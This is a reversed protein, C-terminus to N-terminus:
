ADFEPGSFTEAIEVSGSVLRANWEAVLASVAPPVDPALVLRVAAPNEVGIHRIRGPKWEGRVYDRCAEYVGIGVDAIASGAFVSPEVAIWDRVNGILQAGRARCAAIAGPIAANLMTFLVDAGAAIQAFAVREAVASEDQTGCFTTLLRIGPDVAALGAAFAARGLLGPRVRIGSIHGVTRTRTLRAAAVGALFASQEQRVEYSALNEGRVSGQTVVFCLEPNETAVELAASDNQGGHAIVLRAGTGVLRQLAAALAEVQPPVGDIHTTALDFERSARMLGRYGYEMFGGDDVRGAFLAGVVPRMEGSM